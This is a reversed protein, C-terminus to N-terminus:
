ARLRGKSGSMMKVLDRKWGPGSAHDLFLNSPCSTRGKVERHGIVRAVTVNGYQEQILAAVSALAQRTPRKLELDDDFAIGISRRNTDWDGSHWGIEHDGLLRDCRGDTRVLWHYPWFVQRGGREHGSFIPNGRLACEKEPPNVFYPAYLRMLEIASLRAPSLGPANSTHHIVITDIGKREDDAGHNGRGLAFADKALRTEFYDYLAQKFAARETESMGDCRQLLAEVEPIVILYWDPCAIVRDWRM